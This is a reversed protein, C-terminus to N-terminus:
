SARSQLRPLHAVLEEDQQRDQEALPAPHSVDADVGHVLVRVLRHQDVVAGTGRPQRPGDIRRRHELVEMGVRHRQVADASGLRRARLPLPGGKPRGLPEEVHAVAGPQWGALSDVTPTRTLSRSHGHALDSRALSRLPSLHWAQSSSSIGLRHRALAWRGPDPPAPVCRTPGVSGRHLARLRSGVATRRAPLPQGRPPIRPGGRHHMGLM